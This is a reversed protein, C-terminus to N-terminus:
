RILCNAGNWYLLIPTGSSTLPALDPEKALIDAYDKSDRGIERVPAGSQKVCEADVWFKSTKLMHRAGVIRSSKEAKEQALIVEAERLAISVSKGDLSVQQTKFAFTGKDAVGM